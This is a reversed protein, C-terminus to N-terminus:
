KYLNRLTEYRFISYNDKVINIQRQVNEITTDWGRIIPECKGCVFKNFKVQFDSGYLMPCITGYKKFHFPNQGFMLCSPFPFVTFKLEKKFLRCVDYVHKVTKNITDFDFSHETHRIFDLIIGDVGSLKCWKQAEISIETLSSIKKPDRNEFCNICIFIKNPHTEIFKLAKIEDKPDLYVTDYSSLDIDKTINQSQLWIGKM